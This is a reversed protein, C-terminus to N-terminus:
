RRVTRDGGGRHRNRATRARGHRACQVVHLVRLRRPGRGRPRRPRRDAARDRRERAQLLDGQRRRFTQAGRAHLLEEVRDLFEDGRRKTIDLLAVRAGSLDAPRPALPETVRRREDFPSVYDVSGGKLDRETNMGLCPGFVASYRGAEGGAVVLMIDDPSSWKRVLEDDDAANVLPTTEGWRLSGAPRSVATSCRRACASSAGDGSGSCVSRARPLDRVALDRRAAVLEPEM